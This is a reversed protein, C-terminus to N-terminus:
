ERREPVYWPLRIQRPPPPPFRVPQNSGATRPAPADVIESRVEEAPLGRAALAPILTSAPGVLAAVEHGSCFELREALDEDGASALDRGYGSLSEVTAGGRIAGVLTHMMEAASADRTYSKRALSWRATELARPPLGRTRIARIRALVTALVEAGRDSQVESQVFLLQTGGDWARAGVSVDYAAGNRERVLDFLDARLVEALLDRAAPSADPPADIRCGVVLESIQAGPRDGVLIARDPPATAPGDLAALPEGPDRARWGSWLRRADAVVDDPDVDGVVVLTSNMPSRTRHLWGELDGASLKALATADRSRALPHAPLLHRWLARDVWTGIVTEAAHQRRRAAAVEEAFGPGPPEAHTSEVRHVLMSLVARPKGSPGAMALLHGDAWERTEWEGAVFDPEERSWAERLLEDMGAPTMQAYGGRSFLAAVLFPAAGHRMVVVRLGNSLTTERVRHLDPVLTLQAVEAADRGLTADAADADDEARIELRGRSAVHARGAAEGPEIPDVVLTVVRNRNLWRYAFDRTQAVDIRRLDDFSRSLRDARGSFHVYRAWAVTRWLSSSDRMMEAVYGARVFRYLRDQWELGRPNWLDYLRDVARTAVEDADHGDAVPMTCTAISAERAIQPACRVSQIAGGLTGIAGNMAATTAELIPQDNRYGGPLSWALIVTSGLVPGRIHRVERTNRAPPRALDGAAVRAVPPVLGVRNSTAGPAAALSRPFAREIVRAATSPDLDGAAIITANAPRYHAAAWTRADELTLAGLSAATGGIPRRYPHGDPFLMSSLEAWTRGGLSTEERQHLENILVEREVRFADEDIAELPDTLRRAELKLLPVLADKPAITFFETEDWATEANYVGGLEDIRTAVREARSGGPPCARFWLHEVLHALGEKGPPDSAAGGDIVTAVVISPQTADRQFVIRLGSPLPFDTSALRFPRVGLDHPGFCGAALASGLVILRLLPRRLAGQENRRRAFGGNIM